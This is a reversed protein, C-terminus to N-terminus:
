TAAGSLVWLGSRYPVRLDHCGNDREVVSPRGADDLVAVSRATVPRDFEWGDFVFVEGTTPRVAAITSVGDCDWDGVVLHDTATGVALRHEGVTVVGSGIAIPSCTDDILLGDCHTRSDPLPSPPPSAAVEAVPPAPASLAVPRESRHAVVLAIAIGAVVASGVLLGLGLRDRTREPPQAPEDPRARWRRAAPVPEALLPRALELHRLGDAAPETRAPDAPGPTAADVRVPVAGVGLRSLAAAFEIVANPDSHRQAQASTALARLQRESRGPRSLRHAWRASPADLNDIVVLLTSALAALDAAIEVDGTARADALGCLVPRGHEDILVHDADIAGHAVGCRHLEHLAQAAAAFLAAVQTVNTPRWNSVAGGPVNQYTATVTDAAADDHIDVLRIVSPGAVRRATEAERRIRRARPGRGHKVHHAPPHETAAIPDPLTMAPARALIESIPFSGVHM